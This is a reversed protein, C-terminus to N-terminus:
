VSEDTSRTINVIGPLTSLAADSFERFDNVIQEFTSEDGLLSLLTARTAEGKFILAIYKRIEDDYERNRRTERKKKKAWSADGVSGDQEEKLTELLELETAGELAAQKAMVRSLKLRLVRLEQEVSGVDTSALLEQEPKTLSKLYLRRLEEQKDPKKDTM